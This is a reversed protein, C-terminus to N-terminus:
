RWFQWFSRGAERESINAGRMGELVDLPEDEGGECVRAMQKRISEAEAKLHDTIERAEKVLAAYKRGDYDEPMIREKQKGQRVSVAVAEDVARKAGSQPVGRM